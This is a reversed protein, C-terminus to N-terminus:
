FFILASKSKAYAKVGIYGKELQLDDLDIHNSQVRSAVNVIRASESNKLLNLLLNTILFPTLYNIVFTAELGNPNIMREPKYIGGNNILVDLRDFQKFVVSVM